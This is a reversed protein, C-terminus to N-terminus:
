VLAGEKPVLLVNGHQLDGHGIRSERLEGALREWLGALRDLLASNEVSGRVFENLAFGEVWRMKVIPWWKDAVRIGEPLYQFEVNFRRKNADLHEAIAQYRQRLDAVKRTFCKVAWSQNNPCDVQYVDAFNGSYPRPLGMMGAARGQQLEPDNFCAQPNQIVRNYDTATPWDM